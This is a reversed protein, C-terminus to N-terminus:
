LEMRRQLRYERLFLLGLFYFTTVGFCFWAEFAFMRRVIMDQIPNTTLMRIGSYFAGVLFHLLIMAHVWNIWNEDGRSRSRLYAIGIIGFIFVYFLAKSWEAFSTYFQSFDM